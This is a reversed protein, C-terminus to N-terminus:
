EWEIANKINMKEFCEIASDPNANVIKVGKKAAQSAILPFGRSQANFAGSVTKLVSTYYKHWHQNEEEDLKMDFGLLIIKKCGLHIALNIAAAGSNLNWSISDTKNTIGFRHKKDRRLQKLFYSNIYKDACTVVLGPFSLIEKRFNVFFSDDGFFLIDMWDGMEYAKNVGIIQFDKISEFYPSYCKPKMKGNFVLDRLENPIKFQKLISPGGGIIICTENKWIQPVQWYM